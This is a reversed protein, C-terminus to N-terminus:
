VTPFHESLFLPCIRIHGDLIVNKGPSQAKQPTKFSNHLCHSGPLVQVEKMHCCQSSIHHPGQQCSQEALAAASATFPPFELRGSLSNCSTVRWKRWYKREEVVEKGHSWGMNSGRIGNGSDGMLPVPLIVIVDLRCFACCSRTQPSNPRMERGTWQEASIKALKCFKGKPQSGQRSVLIYFMSNILGRKLHKPIHQQSSM